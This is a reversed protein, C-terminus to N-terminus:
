YEKFLLPVCVFTHCAPLCGRSNGIATFEPTKCVHLCTLYFLLVLVYPSSTCVQQMQMTQQQLRVAMEDNNFGISGAGLSGQLMSTVQLVCCGAILVAAAQM